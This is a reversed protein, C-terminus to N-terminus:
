CFVVKLSVPVEALFLYHRNLEPFCNLWEMYYRNNRKMLPMLFGRVNAKLLLFEKEYQKYFDKDITFRFAIETNTHADHCRRLDANDDQRHSISDPNIDYNYIPSCGELYDM